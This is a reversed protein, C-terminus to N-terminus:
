EEEGVNEKEEELGWKKRGKETPIIRKKGQDDTVEEAEGRRVAELERRQQEENTLVMYNKLDQQMETIEIELDTVEDDTMRSLKAERNEIQQRFEQIMDRLIDKETL